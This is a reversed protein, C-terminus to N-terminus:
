SKQCCGLGKKGGDKNETSEEVKIVKTQGVSSDGPGGENSASKQIVINYIEVIDFLFICKLNSYM